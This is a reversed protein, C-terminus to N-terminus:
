RSAAIKHLVVPVWHEGYRERLEGLQWDEGTVSGRVAIVRLL